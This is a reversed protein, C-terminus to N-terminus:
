INILPWCFFKKELAESIKFTASYNQAVSNLFSNYTKLKARAKSIDIIRILFFFNKIKYSSCTFVLLRIM